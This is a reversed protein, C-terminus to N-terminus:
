IKFTSFFWLTIPVASTMIDLRPKEIPGVRAFYAYSAPVFGSPTIVMRKVIALKNMSIIRWITVRPSDIGDNRISRSINATPASPM